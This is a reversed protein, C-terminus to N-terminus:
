ANDRIINIHSNFAAADGVALTYTNSEDLSATFGLNPYLERVMDNKKTPRYVGVIRSCGRAKARRLIENMTEQEVGRKLVRCSMLWTDILFDTGRTTCIVVLILGHEGFKDSLRMTFADHETGRIIDHIESETRRVTTLNFQNSKNILQTIRPVDVAAFSAIQGVMVLSSLYSDMDTSQERLQQRVADTQYQASRVVDEETISSVEFLRSDKLLGTFKSPDDGLCIGTVEPAFQRVIEVEAPNDDVFVFSDLGLNLASAIQRLNDSKPEWNAKFCAIDTLRLVMEPHTTFPEVAKDYDNKSCVALLVGRRSLALAYQQFHRFAEGRPSTTGIEIGEVGDDGIVGGWLTNDLDLVLVKKAPRKISALIEAFERAVQVVMEASYPQKSEFWARLDTAHRTGLRNALFEVDCINVSKPRNLGLYMNVYKRFGYDSAPSSRLPGPDFEGPLAFNCLVVEAGSHDHASRCLDLLSQAATEAQARATPASDALSGSYTMRAQSPLVLIVAPKFEHLGSQPDMMESDYSDYEGTWLEVSVECLTAIFHEALDALPRLNSGGVIAVRMVPLNAALMGSTAARRRLKHLALVQGFQSERCTADRLAAYFAPDSRALLGKLYPLGHGVVAPPEERLPAENVASVM